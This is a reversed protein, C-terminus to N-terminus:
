YFLQTIIAEALAEAVPPSVAESVLRIQDSLTGTLVYSEPFGQLLMAEFVSLRRHGDPHIHVERNGYAVTYSPKDWSLVKFSRGVKRSSDKLSGDKFKKSKPTMCWHNNHYDISKGVLSDSYFTAEPLGKLVSGVSVGSIHERKPFLFAVDSYKKKNLGVIFVRPRNQAVGFDKADLISEFLCFGAKSAKSKFDNYRDIHARSMLGPVNEFAFFDISYRKNIGALIRAYHNPLQDRPDNEIKHVNGSSFSQCPPGGIIGVPPEIELAEWADIIEKVRIKSLDAIRAGARENNYNFTDVCASDIDYALITKFGANSFGIDLGGPGCFLSILNLKKRSHEM